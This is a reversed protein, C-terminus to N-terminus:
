KTGARLQVYRQFLGVFVGGGIINGLTVPVLNKFVVNGWSLLAATEAPLAFDASSSLFMGMPLMFMNAVSHEFGCTVFLGVPLICAALKDIVTKGAYSLWVGLCVLMNCLIGLCLAEFFNYGLKAAATKVYFVGVAGGNSWPHSSCIILGVIILAGAFNGGYVVVWNAFLRGWSVRKSVGAVLSLTTSTFLDAGLLLVLTLGLSFVMGGLVKGGGTVNVISCYVFALGIFAGAMVALLFASKHDKNAKLTMIDEAKQYIQYPSLCDFHGSNSM